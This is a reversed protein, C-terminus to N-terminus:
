IWSHKWRRRRKENNRSQKRKSQVTRRLKTDIFKELSRAPEFDGPAPGNCIRISANPLDNGLVSRMPTKLLKMLSFIQEVVANSIPLTFLLRVLLLPLEWNQSM